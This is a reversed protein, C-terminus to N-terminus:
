RKAPENILKDLKSVQEHLKTPDIKTYHATMSKPKHGMLYGRVSESVGLQELHSTFSHRWKHLTANKSIGAEKANSKCIRLLKRETLKTNTESSFVYETCRDMMSLMNFLFNSMPIDRESSQTKTTFSGETRVEIIRKDFNVRKWKLSILEEVRMGTLFMGIFVRRYIDPVSTAFFAMIESETYYEEERELMTKNKKREMKIHSFPNKLILDRDVLDKFLAKITSLYFNKTVASANTNIIIDRYKDAHKRSFDTAYKIKEMEVFGNFLEFVGKYKTHSKPALSEKSKIAQDIFSSLPTPIFELGTKALKMTNKESEIMLSWQEARDKDAFTKRKRKGDKNRVDAQFKGSSTKRITGM